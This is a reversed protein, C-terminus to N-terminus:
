IPQAKLQSSTCRSNIVEAKAKKAEYRISRAFCLPSFVIPKTQRQVHVNYIYIYTYVNHAYVRMSTEVYRTNRYNDYWAFWYSNNVIYLSWHTAPYLLLPPHVGWQTHLHCIYMICKINCKRQAHIHTDTHIRIVANHIYAKSTIHMYTSYQMRATYVCKDWHTGPAHAHTHVCIGYMFSSENHTYRRTHINYTHTNTHM